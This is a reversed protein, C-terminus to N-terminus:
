EETLEDNWIRGALKLLEKPLMDPNDRRMQARKHTIFNWFGGFEM